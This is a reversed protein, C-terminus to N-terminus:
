VDIVALVFNRQIQDGAKVRFEALRGSAPAKVPIEVKMSEIVMVEDGRVVQAGAEVSLRLVKGVAPSKIDM